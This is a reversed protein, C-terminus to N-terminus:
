AYTRSSAALEDGQKAQLACLPCCVRLAEREIQWCAHRAAECAEEFTGFFQRETGCAGCTALYREMLPCVVKHFAGDTLTFNTWM